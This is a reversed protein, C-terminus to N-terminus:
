LPSRNSTGTVTVNFVNSPSASTGSFQRLAASSHSVFTTPSLLLYDDTCSHSQKNQTRKALFYTLNNRCIIIPSSQVNRTISVSAM